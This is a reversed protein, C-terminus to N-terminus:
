KFLNQELENWYVIEERITDISTPTYYHSDVGVDYCHPRSPDWTDASHIHGHLLWKGKFAPRHSVYRDKGLHDGHYPFHCLLFEDLEVQEPLVEMYREYEPRCAAAKDKSIAIPAAYDHNGPVLRIHGTLNGLISLDTRNGMKIDGLVYVVDDPGVVSNWNHILASNMEDVNNFPRQCYAIINEHDFHLDSTFFIM